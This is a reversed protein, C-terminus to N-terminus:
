YLKRTNMYLSEVNILITIEYFTGYNEDSGSLIKSLSDTGRYSYHYYWVSSRSKEAQIKAAKQSDYLFLRDTALKILPRFNEKNVESTGFYHKRISQSITAHQEQPATYNFDFLLPCISNWDNNLNQM